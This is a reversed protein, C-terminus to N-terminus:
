TRCSSVKLQDVLPLFIDKRREQEAKEFAAKARRMEEEFDRRRKAAAAVLREQNGFLDIEEREQKTSDRMVREEWDSLPMRFSEAM